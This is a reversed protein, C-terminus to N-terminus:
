KLEYFLQKPLTYYSKFLNINETLNNRNLHDILRNGDDDAVNWHDQFSGKKNSVPRYSSLTNKESDTKQHDSFRGSEQLSENFVGSSFFVNIWM